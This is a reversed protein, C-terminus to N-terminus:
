LLMGVFGKEELLTRDAPMWPAPKGEAKDQAPYWVQVMFKRKDGKLTQQDDNKSADVLQYTIRGVPYAGTPEPLTQAGCTAALAFEIVAILAIATFARVFHCSM